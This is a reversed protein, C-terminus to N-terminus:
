SAAIRQSRQFLNASTVQRLAVVVQLAITCEIPNLGPEILRRYDHAIKQQRRALLAGSPLDFPEGLRALL